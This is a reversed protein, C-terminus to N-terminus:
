AGGGRRADAIIADLEENWLSAVGAPLGTNLHDRVVVVLRAVLERTDDPKPTSGDPIEPSNPLPTAHPGLIIAVNRATGDSLISVCRYADDIAAQLRGCRDVPLPKTPNDTFQTSEHPSLSRSMAYCADQPTGALRLYQMAADIAAQMSRLSERLSAAEAKLKAAVDPLDAWSHTMCDNPTGKLANATATLISDLKHRVRDADAADAKAVAIAVRAAQLDASHLESAKARLLLGGSLDWCTGVTEASAPRLLNAAETVDSSQEAHGIALLYMSLKDLKDTLQRPDTM